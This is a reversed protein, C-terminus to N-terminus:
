RTAPAPSRRAACVAAFLAVALPLSLAHSAFFGVLAAVVGSVASALAVTRLPLRLVGGTVLSAAIWGAPGTVAGWEEFFSRPLTLALV